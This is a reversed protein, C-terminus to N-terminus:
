SIRERETLVSLNPSSAIFSLVIEGQVGRVYTVLALLLFIMKACTVNNKVHSFTSSTVDALSLKDIDLRSIKPDEKSIEPM